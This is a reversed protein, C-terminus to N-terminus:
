QLTKCSDRGADCSDTTSVDCSCADKSHSQSRMSASALKREERYLLIRLFGEALM